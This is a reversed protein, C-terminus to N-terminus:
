KEEPEDPLLVETDPPKIRKPTDSLRPDVPVPEANSSDPRPLGLWAVLWRALGAQGVQRAEDLSSTKALDDLWQDVDRLRAHWPEPNARLEDAWALVQTRVQPFEISWAEALTQPIWHQDVRVFSHQTPPQGPWTVSVVATDGSSATLEVHVQRLQSFLESQATPGNLGPLSWAAVLQRGAGGLFQRVELKRLRTVDSLESACLTKFFQEMQRLTVLLQRDADTASDTTEGFRQVLQTTVSHAKRCTASFPEWTKEDLRNGFDHLLQEVDSRYSPPLFDWLPRLDQSQLEQLVLRVAADATAPPTTEPTTTEPTTTEPTALVDPEPPSNACGPLSLLALVVVLTGPAIRNWVIGHSASM